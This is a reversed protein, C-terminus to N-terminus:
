EGGLSGLTLGAVLHKRAFLTFILVPVMCFVSIAGMENWLIGRFMHLNAAEVPLTRAVRDTMILAFLFENWSFVINFFATAVIGPRAMPIIIRFIVSFRTCGDILASEEISAPVKEFFGRLIWISFPINFFMYLLILGIRTDVIKVGTFHGIGSYILYFPIVVAIPPMMKLTLIMFAHNEKGKWNFRAFAYASFISILIALATSSIAVIVSNTLSHFIRM